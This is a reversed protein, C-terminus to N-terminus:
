RVRRFRSSEIEAYEEGPGALEFRLTFGDEGTRTYTFRTRMGSPGNHITRSEVVFSNGEESVVVDADTVFTEVYYGSASFAGTVNDRFFVTFDQHVEFQTSPEPPPFMDLTREVLYVGAVDYFYRKHIYGTRDAFQGYGQWEGILWDFAEFRAEFRAESLDATSADTQALVPLPILFVLGLVIMAMRHNM